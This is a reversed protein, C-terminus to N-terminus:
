HTAGNAPIARPLVLPRTIGNLDYVIKGARITMECEFKQDGEIRQGTYDYFGFKGKRLNLIAIDAVDGVSLHGLDEHHIERAPNWTVAQIVDHLNMGMALFKSMCNLIDKMSTNMSHAHIDTSISNPFFGNRLAPIAQSFTFSIEGYGVDFIIGKQQAERVFPKVQHTLTDVIFERSGLQAFCHTFIDGPRLHQFFLEQISLPPTTGGFDIMVPLNALKGAKVAEDVPTWEPGSYHAVKFGVIIDKYQRATMAALKGDMDKTDQEYPSGRMGSGVINLFALVRTRANDIVERKFIAFDRWGSCGADVVTTVGTRFSFVDPPIASSGGCYGRAPDTGFFVHVHLDILGPTVLFGRADVVQVAQRTDINKEVKVIHGDNIGIDMVEQINNKVDIVTGGKIVIAYEQARLSFFACCLLLLTGFKYM